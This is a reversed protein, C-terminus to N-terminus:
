FLRVSWGWSSSQMGIQGSHSLASSKSSSSISSPSTTAQSSHPASYSTTAVSGRSSELTSSPKSSSSSSAESSSSSHVMVRAAHNPRSRQHKGSQKRQARRAMCLIRIQLRDLSLHEGGAFLRKRARDDIELVCARFVNLREDGGSVAAVSESFNGAIRVIREPRHPLAPLAVCLVDAGEVRALREGDVQMDFGFLRARSATEIESVPSPRSGM